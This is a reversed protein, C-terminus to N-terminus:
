YHDLDTKENIQLVFATAISVVITSMDRWLWILTSATLFIINYRMVQVCMGKKGKISLLWTSTVYSMGQNLVSYYIIIITM